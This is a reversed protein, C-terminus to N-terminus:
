YLKRMEELAEPPYLHALATFPDAWREIVRRWRVSDYATVQNTSSKWDVIQRPDIRGYTIKFSACTKLNVLTSTDCGNNRDEDAPRYDAKEIIQRPYVRLGAGGANDLYRATMEGADERVMALTNFALITDAPPLDLLITYDIFDDTGYAMVYDAPRPNYTPDCALQYGDNFRRGLFDNDREITGFGLGRATDLNEDDAVVVATAEIGNKILEDCTCRLQRLCIAAMELRGYAPVCFWLSKV